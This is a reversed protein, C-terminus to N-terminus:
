GTSLQIMRRSARRHVATLGNESLQKLENRVVIKISKHMAVVAIPTDPIEGTPLL